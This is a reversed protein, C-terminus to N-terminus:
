GGGVTTPQDPAPVRGTALFWTRSQFFDPSALLDEPSAPDTLAVYRNWDHPALFDRVREGFWHQFWRRLEAKRPPDLPAQDVDAFAHVRVDSLRAQRLLRPLHRGVDGFIRDIRGDGAHERSARWAADRLRVELDAPWPLLPFSGHSDGDLIAIIGGPTTVRRLGALMPVPDAEHHLVLSSWVADFSDEDFPLCNLNGEELAIVGTDISDSWLDAALGLATADIDLGVVRGGPAIREALLGLHVGAGCGADLVRMGSRLGLTDLAAVASASPHTAEHLATALRGERADQERPHADM